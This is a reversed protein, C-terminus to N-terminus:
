QKIAMYLEVPISRSKHYCDFYFLLLPVTNFYKRNELLDIRLQTAKINRSLLKERDSAGGNNKIFELTKEHSDKLDKLFKIRKPVNRMKHLTVNNSHLRRKLTTAHYFYLGDMALAIKWVFEDHAWGEYWYGRVKELFTRRLCMTCGQCGIFINESNFELKEVSKDNKFKALEWVPVSPADESSSFPEFESGMLLVKPNDEMVKEMDRIRDQTWIDDQDCFFILDGSTKDLAGIFNSAYGKNVENVYFHWSASLDHEGIFNRVIIATDDRSQDDCIVVEDVKRTQNYISELQEIINEAGNYTAMAVSITM